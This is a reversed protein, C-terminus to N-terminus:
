GLWGGLAGARDRSRIRETGVLAIGFLYSAGGLLLDIVVVPVWPHIAHLWSLVPTPLVALYQQNTVYRRYSGPEQPATLTVTANTQGRAPVHVRSPEVAIHDADADLYNVVPVFGNNVLTFNVDQSEGAAIGGRSTDEVSDFAFEQAGSPLVMASTASLVVAAALIGVVLRADFGDDRSRSRSGDRQRTNSELYWDVAYAFVSLGFLLYALGQTGLLARTGLLGALTQQIAGLADQTGTVTAGLNPIVVVNGGVQWAVAVIQEDKVPPEGGQQDTFPNADGATIYGEATQGVVRHTTLGGGQIEKARYTVVDGEEIPGSVASPIAVFGDGPELTPDMSGTEVFALLVPQGLVQGVLVSLVALLVVVEVGRVVADRANM